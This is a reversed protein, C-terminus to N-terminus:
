SEPLALLPPPGGKSEPPELPLVDDDDDLLEPPGVSALRLESPAVSEPVSAPGGSGQPV